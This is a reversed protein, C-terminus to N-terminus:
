IEDRFPMGKQAGQRMVSVSAARVALEAAEDLSKGEALGAALWGNFCDGAGVTDLPKVRPAAIQRFGNENYLLVGKAGLTIAVNQCGWHHLKKAASRITSEGTLQLAENENPTITHIQAYLKRPLARAPAPNLIFLGGYERTIRAAATVAELPIELQCLVVKSRQLLVEAAEIETEGLADNASKAVAIINERKKGGIMILAVGSPFDARRKFYRVNINEDRLGRCAKKGYDDDGCLGVFAVKLDTSEKRLARAAAVAQNAGKGGAFQEFAGGLVTEGPQPLNQCTLVLDTNSSGIVTIYNRLTSM